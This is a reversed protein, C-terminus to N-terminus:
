NVLIARPTEEYDAPDAMQNTYEFQGLHGVHQSLDHDVMVDFGAERCKQFLWIDEGDIRPTAGDLRWRLNFWPRPVQEFVRREFLAVGLGGGKAPELGRSTPLTPMITGDLRKTIPVAPVTRRVYNAIVIPLQRYALWHIVDHPFINDQDLMLMHTVQPDASMADYVMQERSYPLLSTQMNRIYYSQEKGIHVNNLSQIAQILSIAFKSEWTDHSPILIALHFKDLFPGRFHPGNEEEHMDERM